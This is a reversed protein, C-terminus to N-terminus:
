NFFCTDMKWSDNTLDVVAVDHKSHQSQKIVATPLDENSTTLVFCQYTHGVSIWLKLNCRIFDIRIKNLIVGTYGARQRLSKCSWFNYNGTVSSFFLTGMNVQVVYM